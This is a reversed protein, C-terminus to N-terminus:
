LPQKHQLCLCLRKVCNSHLMNSDVPSQKATGAIDKCRAIPKIVQLGVPLASANTLMWHFAAQRMNLKRSVQRPQLAFM